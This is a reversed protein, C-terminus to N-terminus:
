SWPRNTSLSLSLPSHTYTNASNVKFIISSAMFYDAEVAVTASLMTGMPQGDKGHTAARDDWMITPPSRPNGVFTIFPKTFPIM